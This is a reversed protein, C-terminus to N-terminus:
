YLYLPASATETYEMWTRGHRIGEPAIVPECTFVNSLHYLYKQKTESTYDFESGKEISCAKRYQEFQKISDVRLVSDIYALGKIIPRKSKGTEALLIPRGVLKKLTNRNRTEYQKRNALIDFIFNYKKCNIFVIPLETKRNEHIISYAKVINECSVPVSFKETYKGDSFIISLGKGAQKVSTPLAYVLSKVLHQTTQEKGTITCSVLGHKSIVLKYM